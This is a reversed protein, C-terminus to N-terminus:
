SSGATEGPGPRRGASVSSRGTLVLEEREYAKREVIDIPAPPYEEVGASLNCPNDYPDALLYPRWRRFLREMEWDRVTPDRSSSEHHVVETQCDVVNRLGQRHLKLCFDVDNYSLPFSTSFGGVLEFKTREVALCAATVALCNQALRLAHFNGPHDKSFGMYRHAPGAGRAWVGAHQVRGDGYLLKAGTAGIDPRTAYMVLRELWNTMTIETDDNLFVLVDGASRVAGLNCARAFNFDQEDAVLRLVPRPDAGDVVAAIRHGLLPEVTADTVVVLEYNPYSTKEVISRVAVEVLLSDVGYLARRSGGTPMIISVLPHNELRPELHSVGPAQPHPSAAAPFGTRTLHATVARSGADWAWDKADTTMATSGPSERWHYLIRPIHVIRRSREAVRLALDHDQAGDFESRFGGVEIVVTRRLALLHGLYMQCRLREMSFSPKYFPM